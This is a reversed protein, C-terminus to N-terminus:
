RTLRRCSTMPSALATPAAATWRAWEGVEHEEGLSVPMVVDPLPANGLQPPDAPMFVDLM